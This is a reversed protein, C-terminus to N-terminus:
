LFSPLVNANAEMKMGDVCRKTFFRGTMGLDKCAYLRVDGPINKRLSTSTMVCTCLFTPLAMVMVGRWTPTLFHIRNLFNQQQSCQLPMIGM